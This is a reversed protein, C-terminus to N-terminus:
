NGKMVANEIETERECADVPKSLVDVIAPCRLSRTQLYKDIGRLLQVHVPALSGAFAFHFAAGSSMKVSGITWRPDPVHSKSTAFARDVAALLARYDNPTLQYRHKGLLRVNSFGEYIATRDAFVQVRFSPYEGYLGDAQSGKSFILVAGAPTGKSANGGVEAVKENLVGGSAAGVSTLTQIVFFVLAGALECCRKLVRRGPDPSAGSLNKQQNCFNRRDGIRERASRRM